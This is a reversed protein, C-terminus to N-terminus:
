ASHLLSVGYWVVDVIVIEFIQDLMLRSGTRIFGDRDGALALAGLAGEPVGEQLDEFGLVISDVQEYPALTALNFSSQTMNALAQLLQPLFV